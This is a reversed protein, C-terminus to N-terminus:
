KNSSSQESIEILSSFKLCPLMVKQDLIRVIVPKLHALILISTMSFLGAFIIDSLFHDGLLIRIGGSLAGTLLAIILFNKKYQPFIIYGIVSLSFFGAAHGSVFSHFSSNPMTQFIEYFSNAGGFLDLQYPRPRSWSKKIVLEILIGASITFSVLGYLYDKMSFSFRGPQPSLPAYKAM